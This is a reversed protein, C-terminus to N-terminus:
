NQDHLERWRRLLDPTESHIFDFLSATQMLRKGAATDEGVASIGERLRDGWKAVASMQHQIVRVWVDDDVVYCDRRTGPERQRSTLDLQVLYRVAGSIAAPSAQLRKALEAATLRGEQSALLASFVRAAMRPFGGEVLNGAFREIFQSLARDDREVQIDGGTSEEIM